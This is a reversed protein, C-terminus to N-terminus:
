KEKESKCCEWDNAFCDLLSCASDKSAENGCIRSFKRLLDLMRNLDSIKQEIQSIKDDCTKVLVPRTEASCSALDLLEQAEKLSFGLEQVRKVFKITRVDSETYTRYGVTRDPTQLLGKRQYFRVTEVGVGAADALKGITMPEKITKDMRKM